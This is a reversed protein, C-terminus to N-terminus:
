RSVRGKLSKEIGICRNCLDGKPRRGVVSKEVDGARSVAMVPCLFHWTDSRKRRRYTIREM